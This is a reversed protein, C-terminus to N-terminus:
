PRAVREALDSLLSSPLAPEIARAAALQRAADGTEGRELALIALGVRAAGAGLALAQEYHHRAELILIRGSGPPDPPAVVSEMPEWRGDSHGVWDSFLVTPRVPDLDTGPVQIREQQATLRLAVHWRLLENAAGLHAAAAARKDGLHAWYADLAAGVRGARSHALAKELGPRALYVLELEAPLSVQMAVLRAREPALANARARVADAETIRGLQTLTAALNRLTGADRPQLAVARQFAAEAEAYRGQRYHVVGVNDMASASRPSLTAAVAFADAADDLHGLRYEALGLRDWARAWRPARAVVTRYTTAAEAFRGARFHEEAVARLKVAPNLLVSGAVIIAPVGLAAATVVTVTRWPVRIWGGVGPALDGLHGRLTNLYARLAGIYVWIAVCMVAPALAEASEELAVELRYLNRPMFVSKATGEFLLAAVWLGIATLGLRVFAASLARRALIWGILGGMAGVIVPSLLVLWVVTGQVPSTASFRGRAAATNFQEHIVLAEDLAMAAFLAAAGAWSALPWLRRAGARKLALAEVRLAYASLLAAAALLAAQFYTPLNHEEDLDVLRWEPYAVNLVVFVAQVAAVGAM